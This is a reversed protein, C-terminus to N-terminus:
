AEGRAVVSMANRLLLGCGLCDVGHWGIRLRDVLGAAVVSMTRSCMAVVALGRSTTGAWGLGLWSGRSCWASPGVAM